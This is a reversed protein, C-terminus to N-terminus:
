VKRIARIYNFLFVAAYLSFVLAYANFLFAWDFRAAFEGHAIAAIFNPLALSFGVLSVTFGSSILYNRSDRPKFGCLTRSQALMFVPALAMFLISLLNESIQTPAAYGTFRQLLM